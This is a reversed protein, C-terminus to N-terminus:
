SLNEVQVLALEKFYGGDFSPSAGVVCNDECTFILITGFEWGTCTLFLSRADQISSPAKEGSSQSILTDFPLESLLTPMIQFEFVRRSGCGDCVPLHETTIPLKSRKTSAEPFGLLQDAIPDTLSYLLPTGNFDYRLLHGPSHAARSSFNLFAKDVGKPKTSKEYAEGAWSAEPDPNAQPDVSADYELCKSLESSLLNDEEADSDYPWFEEVETSIYYSPLLQSAEPWPVSKTDQTLNAQNILFFLTISTGLACEKKRKPIEKLTLKEMSEELSAKPAEPAPLGFGSSSGWISGLNALAPGPQFTPKAPAKEKNKTVKLQKAYAENYNMARIINVSNPSSTCNPKPCIFIYLTRDYPSDTLPAYLQLLFTQDGQCNGCKATPVFKPPCPNLWDLDVLRSGGLKSTFADALFQDEILDDKYGLNVPLKSKENKPKKGKGKNKTKAKSPLDTSHSLLMSM